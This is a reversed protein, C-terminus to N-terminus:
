LAIAVLSRHRWNRLADTPPISCDLDLNVAVSIPSQHRTMSQQQQTADLSVTREPEQMPWVEDEDLLEVYGDSGGESMARQRSAEQIVARLTIGTMQRRRLYRQRQVEGSLYPGHVLSRHAGANTSSRAPTVRSRGNSRGNSRNSNSNNNSSNRNRSDHGDNSDSGYHWRSSSITSQPERHRLNYNYNVNDFLPSANLGNLIREDTSLGHALSMEAMSLELSVLNSGDAHPVTGIQWSGNSGAHPGHLTFQQLQQLLPPYPTRRDHRTARCLPCPGAQEKIKDACAQCTYHSCFWHRVKDTETLELFCIPCDVDTADSM